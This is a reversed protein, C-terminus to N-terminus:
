KGTPLDIEFMESSRLENYKRKSLIGGRYMVSVSREYNKASKEFAAVASNVVKRVVLTNVKRSRSCLM